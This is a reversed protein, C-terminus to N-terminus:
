RITVQRSVVGARARREQATLPASLRLTEALRRLFAEAPAELDAATCDEPLDWVPVLLGDARFAGVYRAGEVIATEGASYLRALADLLADEDQPLVWRLHRREGIQCWYASEVSTLRVTPVVSENARELSEVVDAGREQGEQLWYDFGDHVTVEFRAGLDLLDQLRPGPVLDGGGVASGPESALAALLAQAVDRSADGSGLHTQLGVVVSGDARRLAPWAMPLVSAVTVETIIQEGDVHPARLRAVATAAPVIERLAVWDCEGPLGQFPRASYSMAADRRAKGHCVKYRKGSGCPCPERAGVVPVEEASLDKRGPQPAANRRAM